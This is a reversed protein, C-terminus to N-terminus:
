AGAKKRRYELATLLPIDIWEVGERPVDVIVSRGDSVLLMNEPHTVRIERGDALHLWFPRFPRARYARRILNLNM